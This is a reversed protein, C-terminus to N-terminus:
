FFRQRTELPEDRGFATQNQCVYFLFACNSFQKPIKWVLVNQSFWGFAIGRRCDREPGAPHCHAIMCGGHTNEWGIVDNCILFRKPFRQGKSRVCGLLCALKNSDTDFWCPRTGSKTVDLVTLRHTQALARIVFCNMMDLAEAFFWIRIQRLRKQAPTIESPVC